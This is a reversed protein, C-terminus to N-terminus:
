EAKAEEELALNLAEEDVKYQDEQDTVNRCVQLELEAIEEELLKMIEEENLMKNGGVGSWKWSIVFEEGDDQIYTQKLLKAAQVISAPGLIIRVRKEVNPNQTITSAEVYTNNCLHLVLTLWELDGGNKGVRRRGCWRWAYNHTSGDETLANKMFSVGNM